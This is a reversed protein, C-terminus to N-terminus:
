RARGGSGSPQVNIVSIMQSGTFVAGDKTYGQLMIQNEGPVQLDGSDALAKVESMEFKAVFNGQNDAKWWSIPVDNLTVTGGEVSNYAIGTHVTVVEGQSQINLTNPSVQISIDFGHSSPPSQFFGLTVIFSVFLVVVVSRIIKSM